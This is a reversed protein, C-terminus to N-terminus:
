IVSDMTVVYLQISVTCVKPHSPTSTGQPSSRGINTRQLMPLTLRMCVQSMQHVRTSTPSRSNPIFAKQSQCHARKIQFCTAYAHVSVDLWFVLVGNLDPTLLAICM